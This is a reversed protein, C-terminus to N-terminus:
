PTEGQPPHKMNNRRLNDQRERSQVGRAVAFITALKDLTAREADHDRSLSEEWRVIEEATLGKEVGRAGLWFLTTM